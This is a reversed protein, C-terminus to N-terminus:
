PYQAWPLQVHAFDKLTVWNGGWEVPVNLAKASSSIQKWIAGYVAQEHGRAWDVHGNTLAAVDVACAVGDKNPLHRSHMTQSHGTAVAQQEAAVTRIGYVVVFPQPTQLAGRIVNALAPHVKALHLESGADM